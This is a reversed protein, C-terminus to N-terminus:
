KALIRVSDGRLVIGTQTLVVDGNPRRNRVIGEYRISGDSRGIVRDNAKPKARQIIEVTNPVLVRLLGSARRVTVGTYGVKTVVGDFVIGSSARGKVTDGINVQIAVSGTAAAGGVTTAGSSVATKIVDGNVM